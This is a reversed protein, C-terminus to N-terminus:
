GPPWNFRTGLWRRLELIAGASAAVAATSATADPGGLPQVAAAAAVSLLEPSAAAQAGARRWLAVLAAPTLQPLVLGFDLRTASAAAVWAQYLRGSPRSGRLSAYVETMAPIEPFLPDRASTGDAQLAGLSFLPQAGVGALAALRDPVGRGSLFVLDVERREFAERAAGADMLGFVPAPESGILDLALLAAMEPGSPGAAAVRPRRGRALMAPGGRGAVIGPTVGAMVPVWRGPDFRARPDGALWALAAAGPVLLVTNGDPATRVDFQNAATVGDAGGASAMRVTTGPPLSRGLAPMILHSWRDLEGGEPGAVLVSIQDQPSSPASLLAEQQPAAARAGAWGLTSLGALLRLARRRGPRPTADTM